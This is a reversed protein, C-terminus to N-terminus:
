AALRRQVRDTIQARRWLALGLGTSLVGYLALAWPTGIVNAILGLLLAGFPAIGTFSLTYLALVRGRYESPVILQLTTNIAIFQLIMFFGVFLSVLGATIVTTQAALLMMGAGAWFTALPIIRHFGLRGALWGILAGAGVSGVGQAASLAAFGEEPSNLV